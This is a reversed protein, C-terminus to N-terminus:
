REIIGLHMVDLLLIHQGSVQCMGVMLVIIIYKNGRITFINGNKLLQLQNVKM